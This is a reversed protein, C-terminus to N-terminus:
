GESYLSVINLLIKVTTEMSEVCAYEFKGHCNQGGTCLNPCPLGMFSLRAGDTGGRIPIILPSVEEMEMAKVANDILHANEPLIKEKMNYYSDEMDVVFTDAGYKGNLFEAAKLFFAKKEEFKDRDHDRIIYDVDVHEVNGSIGDVHYFGEYGETAEPVEHVPLLAQFEQALLIANKMKGKASGPHVSCGNVHLTVDAANFNEYELEGLAGGDVTYAYDAGFGEVDFHDVGGGVEEDPTFGIRVTGHGIEPHALLYEAMAMIEAVGAKDDAGLLTTGDTVILSKGILAALEPNEDAKMVISLAENLVIDGGPYNEVIRPKVDKGSIAMSTDMHAIFGLVPAINGEKLTSPITAYVYGYQEDFRVDSAGMEQLEKTLLRGLDKQKETSPFTDSPSWSQTDIKVYRLFKEVVSSM